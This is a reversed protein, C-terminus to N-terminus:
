KKILRVGKTEGNKTAASRIEGQILKPSELEQASIKSLWEKVDYKLGPVFDKVGVKFHFDSEFNCTIKEENSEHIGYPRIIAM